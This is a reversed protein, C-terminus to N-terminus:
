LKEIKNIIVENFVDKINTIAKKPIYEKGEISVHFRYTQSNILQSIIVPDYVILKIKNFLGRGEKKYRSDLVIVSWKPQTANNGYYTRADDIREITAEITIDNDEFKNNKIM